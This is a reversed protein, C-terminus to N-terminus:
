GEGKRIVAAHVRCWMLLTKGLHRGMRASCADITEGHQGVPPELFVGLPYADIVEQMRGAAEEMGQAKAERLAADVTEVVEVVQQPLLDLDWLVIIMEAVARAEDSM